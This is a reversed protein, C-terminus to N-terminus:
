DTRMNYFYLTDLHKVDEQYKKGLRLIMNKKLQALNKGKMKNKLLLDGAM